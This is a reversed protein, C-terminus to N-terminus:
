AHMTSVQRDPQRRIDTVICSYLVFLVISMLAYSHYIALVHHIPPLFLVLLAINFLSKRLLINRKALEGCVITVPLLLLSLDYIFAHFGTLLTAVVAASFSLDLQNDNWHRATFWLICASLVATLALSLAPVRDSGIFSILGHLNAAYEPQFNMLKRYEPNLFMRPYAVIVGPGSVMVSIAILVFAGIAFGSLFAWRRRLTFVIAFPLVLHYKFLACALFIGATRERRQKLAGFCLTYLLLILVSDQGILLCNMVPAFTLFLVFLLGFDIPIGHAYHLLANIVNTNKRILMAAALLLSLSLLLWVLYAERYALYTFPVFLLAEFPPRLYFAHVPAVQLQFEAQLKLDYLERGLGQRVIQGASYFESFDLLRSKDQKSSPFSVWAYTIGLLVILFVAAFRIAGEWRMARPNYCGRGLPLQSGTLRGRCSPFQESVAFSLTPYSYVFTNPLWAASTCTPLLWITRGSHAHIEM